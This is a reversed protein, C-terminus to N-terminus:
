AFRERGAEFGGRHAAGVLEGLSRIGRAELRDRLEEAMDELCRIRRFHWTGVEVASAGALVLDLVDQAGCVGGCGVIPIGVKGYTQLVLRLTLPFVAPGSLGAVRRAFLPRGTDRDLAAGLWTNAVVVGDAGGAEAARATAGFDGAQPTLKVWLVGPWGPRAVELAARVGEPTEGWAAGGGDVNPCSLNLELVAVRDAPGRLAECAEGLSDLDECALNLVVKKGTRALGPLTDRIWAEVGPNELGISNLLGAPTEALRVGGNGERPHRTLGKTCIGDCGKLDEWLVPDMPLIGSAPILPSELTLPGLVSRLDISCM